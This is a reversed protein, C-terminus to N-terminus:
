RHVINRDFNSLALNPCKGQSKAGSRITRVQHLLSLYGAFAEEAM